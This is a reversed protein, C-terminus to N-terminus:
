HNLPIDHYTMPYVVLKIDNVPTVGGTKATDICLLTCLYMLCPPQYYVLLHQSARIEPQRSSM